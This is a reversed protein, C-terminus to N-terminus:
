TKVPWQTILETSCLVDHLFQQRPLFLALLAYAAVGSILAGFITTTSHLGLAWACALAPMFWLWSLVYRALARIQTLPRGQRDLVRIHWAKMAVTQGGHTWFWIFYIGLVVFIFAQLGHQGQMAHRQQTIASFFYGSVFVVGFLLVGEYMFAALRRWLSPRANDQTPHQLAPSRTM